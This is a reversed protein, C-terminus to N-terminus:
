GSCHHPKFNLQHTEPTAEDDEKWMKITKDAECTVLRSGTVDFSAAFIGNESELSGPQAVTRTRQFSCGSEWDCFCLSGDDGGAVLVGDGNVAMANVIGGKEEKERAINHLFEGRPLSFKKIDGDGSASAFGRRRPHAALARVSKKHHTLTLMAKGNRIDWFKVTSDHSGTVVQPEVPRALVSCVTDGHGTLAFIQKKTRIDWVRCVFDRGGTLLVDITPHLALCYVGSLHGDYSRIVKNRELDWCKVQKDDGASFMYTHTQSVALGRVQGIHGTLTHKLRGSAVDWIKITRDASGTCFWSNGPDFAVSRVSGQHGSIVRYSKWPAHWTHNRPGSTTRTRKGLSMSSSLDLAARKLSQPEVAEM